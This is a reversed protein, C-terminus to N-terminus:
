QEVVGGSVYCIGDSSTDTLTTKRQSLEPSIQTYNIGNENQLETLDEKLKDIQELKEKSIGGLDGDSPAPPIFQVEKIEGTAKDKTEFFEAKVRAM